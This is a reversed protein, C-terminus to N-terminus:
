SSRDVAAPEGVEYIMVDGFEIRRGIQDFKDLSV